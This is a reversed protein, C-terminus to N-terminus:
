KKPAITHSWQDGRELPYIPAFIGAAIIRSLLAALGAAFMAAPLPTRAAAALVGRVLGGEASPRGVWAANALQHGFPFGEFLKLSPSRRSVFRRCALSETFDEGSAFIVPDVFTITGIAPIANL